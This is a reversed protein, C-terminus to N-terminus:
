IIDLDAPLDNSKLCSTRTSTTHCLTHGTALRCCGSRYDHWAVNAIRFKTFKLVSCLNIM